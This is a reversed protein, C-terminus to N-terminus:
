RFSKNRFLYRFEDKVKEDVTIKSLPRCIGIIEMLPLELTIRKTKNSGTPEPQTLVKENELKYQVDLFKFLIIPGENKYIYDALREARKQLM